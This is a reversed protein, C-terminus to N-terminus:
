RPRQWPDVLSEPPFAATPIGTPRGEWPDIIVFEAPPLHRPEQWPDLLEVAEPVVWKATAPRPGVTRPAWPDVLETAPQSLGTEGAAAPLAVTLLVAAVIPAVPSRM